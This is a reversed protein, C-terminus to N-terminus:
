QGFSILNTITYQIYQLWYTSYGTHFKPIHNPPAVLSALLSLRNTAAFSFTYRWCFKKLRSEWGLLLLETTLTSINVYLKSVAIELAGRLSLKKISRIFLSNNVSVTGTFLPLYRYAKNELVTSSFLFKNELVCLLSSKRSKEITRCALVWFCPWGADVFM